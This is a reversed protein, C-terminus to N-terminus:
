GGIDRRRLMRYVVVVCVVLYAASIMTGHILPRYYPPETLLGHWAGFASAILLRRVAEPGDVLAYGQMALGALVPLGIGAASSRTAVSLLVAVGTFGLAPPLVSAWALAVRVLAQPPPLLAGSLNIVAATRHRARRRGRQEGGARGGRALFLGARHAGKWLVGRRPQPLAHARDGLHRLPGRGLVPRRRHRQHGRPLGVVRRVRARGAADCLRVGERFPRLAHGGSAHDARADRRRLRVPQGCVGRAPPASQGPRRAQFMRRRGGGPRRPRESSCRRPKRTTGPMALRRLPRGWPAEGTLELFLSELSRARRELARVAVGARGLAISTLTSPTSTPPCRSVATPLSCRVKVGPPRAALALATWDDSTRLAHVAAPARKRLEDVTGSFVVRGRNIVTLEACLEEVEAMDHSSLVVAAGEDALRRALARVDRAGGPDLSSTPEDLFFLRPTRLLAAALGLRQRMGASYGSVAVDAHPALGIQELANDM